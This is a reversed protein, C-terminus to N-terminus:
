AFCPSINPLNSQREWNARKKNRRVSVVIVGLGALLMAYTEPEPVPSVAIGMVTYPSGEIAGPIGGMVVSFNSFDAARTKTYEWSVSDGGRFKPKDGVDAPDMGPQNAQNLNQFNVRAATGNLLQVSGALEQYNTFATSKATIGTNDNTAPVITNKAPNTVDFSLPQRQTGAPPAYGFVLSRIFSNAYGESTSTTTGNNLDATLTWRSAQNGAGASGIDEVKLRAVFSDVFGPSTSKFDYVYSAAQSQGCLLLGFSIAAVSIHNRNPFKM